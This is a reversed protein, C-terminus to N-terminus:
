MRRTNKYFNFNDLCVCDKMMVSYLSKSIIDIKREKHIYLIMLHNKRDQKMTTRLYTKTHRLSSFSRECTASTAPMVLLLQLLRSTQPFLERYNCIKQKLIQFSFDNGQMTNKIM